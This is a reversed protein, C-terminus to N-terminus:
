FYDVLRIRKVSGDQLTLELVTGTPSNRLTRLADESWAPAPKGDILTIHDGPKLGSAEAPGGPAVFEVAFGGADKQLTLGLRDKVFTAAAAGAYPTAYLRDHTYDIILHFRSLVPLGINGLTRNSNVGSVTDPTFIAPMDSFAVGAFQVQRLTAVTEPHVGGIAGGLTQSTRRGDLLRNQQYFAPYVLLPSGNGLDFDFQVPALGEVSVPVSRNSIVQILPVEVAGAPKALTAPDRLALRHNAFDIDVALESFLENGLVFPLPHGIRKGVAALDLSAVTLDHLTLAGVQVEVGGIFGVVDSGGSGMGAFGGKSALGISTAYGKDIASSDAGSDLLVVTERGNIRAPFYIRNGGYFEFDIWGTSTAGNAFIAKRVPKPRAFLTADVPRNLEATELRVISDGGEVSTKITQLFPVRVGDVVRWDGFGEFRTKRDELIRFGGLEGTVPDIFADYIDADGFTMRVVSWTRGERTEAALLTAKAGGRGRLPDEFLLAAERRLGLAYASPTTEIQGSPTTDWAQDPTIVQVQKIVGLDVTTRQRGDRDTWGEARGALGGTDLVGAQHISRLRAYAEGGRWAVYRDILADLDDAHAASVCPLAVALAAILNLILRRM